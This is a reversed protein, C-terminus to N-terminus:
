LHKVKNELTLICQDRLVQLDQDSVSKLADIRLQIEKIKAESDNNKIQKFTAVVSDLGKGAPKHKKLTKLFSKPAKLISKEIAVSLEDSETADAKELLVFAEDLSKPGGISVMKLFSDTLAYATLSSLCFSILAIKFYKM